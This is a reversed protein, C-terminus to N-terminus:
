QRHDLRRGHWCQPNHWEFIRVPWSCRGFASFEDTLNAITNGLGAFIGSFGNSSNGINGDGGDTGIPIWNAPTTPDTAANLPQALAYDGQLTASSTNINQVAGMNYLLTYKTGEISLSAGSSSGGSFSISDGNGISYDDGAGNTLSLAGGGTVTVNANVLINGSADLTLGESGPLTLAGTVIINANSATTQVYLGNFMTLPEDITFGSGTAIYGYNTLGAILTQAATNSGVATSILSSDQTQLSTANAGSYTTDATPAILTNGWINYNSLSGTATDLIAANTAGTTSNQTTYALISTGSGSITGPALLFYYYGNAGTTVLDLNAGNM